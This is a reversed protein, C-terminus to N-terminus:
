RREFVFLDIILALALIRKKDNEETIKDFDILFNDADTFMEKGIGSWKKTILSLSNEIVKSKYINFTWPHM